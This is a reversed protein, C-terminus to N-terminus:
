QVSPPSLGLKNLLPTANNLIQQDINFHDLENQSVTYSKSSVYDSDIWEKNDIGEKVEFRSLNNRRYKAEQKDAETQVIQQSSTFIHYDKSQLIREITQKILIEDVLEPDEILKSIDDIEIQPEVKNM